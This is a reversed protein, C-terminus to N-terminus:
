FRTLRVGKARLLLSPKIQTLCLPLTWAKHRAWLYCFHATPFSTPLQQTPKQYQGCSGKFYVKGPGISSGFSSSIMQLEWQPGSLISLIICPNGWKSKGVVWNVSSFTLTTLNLLSLPVSSPNWCLDAQSWFGPQGTELPIPYKM